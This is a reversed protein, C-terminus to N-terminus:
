EEGAKPSEFPIVALYCAEGNLYLVKAVAGNFKRAIRAATTKKELPILRRNKARDLKTLFGALHGFPLSHYRNRSIVKM